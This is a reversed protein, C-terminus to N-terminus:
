LDKELAKTCHGLLNMRLDGYEGVWLDDAYDFAERPTVWRGLTPVPYLTDGSYWSWERFVPAITLNFVDQRYGASWANDCIGACPLFWSAAREGNRHKTAEKHVRKLAELLTTDSM